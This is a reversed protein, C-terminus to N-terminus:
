PKGWVLELKKRLRALARFLQTKINSESCGLRSAIDKIELHQDYRLDFIIRQRPSLLGLIERIKDMTQCRVAAEEPSGAGGPHAPIGDDLAVHMGERRRERRRLHDIAANVCISSLWNSLNPSLRPDYSGIRKFAKIFTEQLVDEADQASRLYRYALRYIRERHDDYLKRFAERHGDRALNLTQAEQM